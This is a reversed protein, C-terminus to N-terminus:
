VDWNYLNLLLYCIIANLLLGLARPFKNTNTNTNTLQSIKQSMEFFGSQAFALVEIWRPKREQVVHIQDIMSCASAAHPHPFFTNGSLNCKDLTFTPSFNNGLDARRVDLSINLWMSIKISIEKCGFWKRVKPSWVRPYVEVRPHLSILKLGKLAFGVDDWAIHFHCVFTRLAIQKHRSFAFGSFRFGVHQKLFLCSSPISIAGKFNVFLAQFM